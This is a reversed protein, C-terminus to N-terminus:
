KAPPKRSPRKIGLKRMRSRLTEPHMALIGAAGDKGEIKWYTEELVEIIYNKEMEMLSLREGKAQWGESLSDDLKETLILADGKSLIMAREIINELERVNGPWSYGQLIRLTKQPIRTINKGVKKNLHNIFHNVLLPIDEKRDRLPPIFIPYVNLRFYLDERFRGEKVEKQLIRNTAAVIRIDVKRTHPSGLREFEGEQIVRLLKVQLELPLEGIEDLFITGKDALEFRGAQSKVAGTYAGKEYGFLEAEILSAPLAACSVKLLPRDKRRSAHHIARAFLEKGVGTEGEILVATDTAAVQEVKSLAHRLVDSNGIIEEFNHELMIEERLVINEAKTLENLHSIEKLAKQLESEKQRLEENSRRIQKNTEELKQNALGLERTRTEVEEGLWRNMERLQKRSHRIELQTRVRALLEELEFPKTVYDQAGLRFSEIISEKEVKATLFIIPIESYEEEERIKKCVEFGSLGPMMVDLLVLDFKKKKLWALAKAGDLAFEVKFKNQRLTNGLLQLNQPTDDVILITFDNSKPLEM